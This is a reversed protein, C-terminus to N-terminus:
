LAERTRIGGGGGFYIEGIQLTYYSVIGLNSM